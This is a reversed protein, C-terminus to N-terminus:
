NFGRQRWREDERRSQVHKVFRNVADWNSRRKMMCGVINDPSLADEELEVELARREKWWRDCRFFVHEANDVPAECDACTSDELKGIRKLHAGFCGHDSLLQTLHFDVSGYKRSTWTNIDKITRRTWEGNEEKDWEIQWRNMVEGKVERTVRTQDPEHKRKYKETREWALLHAPILGAIVMVAATSITCYARAIRVAMTKQPRVLNEINQKFVLAESWIPSAYLLKSEVVTSLLKRKKQGSGGINPMLRALASATSNAKAAATKIHAKFGLVRHLEVGLYGISEKIEIRSGVISFEPMKYGRKTTLIVAESKRISLDLGASSMWEAVRNLAENTATELLWTTHGTSVVAVDDSFAVLETSSIGTVNGGTDMDLFGDYMINWLLPGLVSGQPVGCTAARSNGEYTVTRNSLYSQLIGVLYTPVGKDQLAKIIIPWKVTNFANAKYLAVVACLKRRSLPGSGATDVVSMVRKIADVTSRGRRFGYQRDNLIGNEELWKEMRSKIVREFLKGVTNLLCIPRYSSPDDLPKDGKRLLVLKAVKWPQPFIGHRLCENFIDRLIEPRKIAIEKVVIDPVGDPGPAKGHPIKCVLEGIEACTVDPFVHNESTQPWVVKEETPFLADIISDAKGPLSLGPIPRRGVLKKTVLKYPLGWPDTEVQRCLDAWGAKKSRQIALKLEKRKEKFAEKKQEHEELPRFRGRKYERRAKHCEARIKAIDQTWWYAPKKGGTYKGKPMCSNCATKLYKDLSSAAEIGEGCTTLDASEIFNLLKTRDYKMWSWKEEPPLSETRIKTEISYTIYRHLSASYDDLTKWDCVLHSSKENVFTIDIHSRSIGGAYVRSFTPKDGTNCVELGTSATMDVLARGKPEDTYDGWATSKANFDGAVIVTGEQRRISGELRDLFDIFLTYATNPSWYCAYVTIDEVKVWRFGTNDKQGIEQIQLRPNFVLIAARADIDTFWGDAESDCCYPESFVVVNIGMNAATALALDQAVRCVGVNIQLCRIM